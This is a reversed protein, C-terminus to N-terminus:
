PKIKTEDRYIPDKIDLQGFIDIKKGNVFLTVAHIEPFETLTNVISYILLIDTTDSVFRDTMFSESLDVEAIKDNVAVSNIVTTEPVIRILSDGAPPKILEKLADIYKNSGGEADLLGITRWEPVLYEGQSDAYYVKITLENILESSVESVDGTKDKDEVEDIDEYIDEKAGDKEENLQEESEEINVEESPETSDVDLKKEGEGASSGFISCASIIILSIVLLFIFSVSFFNSIPRNSFVKFYKMM